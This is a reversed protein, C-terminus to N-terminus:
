TFASVRFWVIAHWTIKEGEKTFYLKEISVSEIKKQYTVLAKNLSAVFRSQLLGDSVLKQIEGKNEFEWRNAGFPPPSDRFVRQKQLYTLVDLQIESQTFLTILCIHKIRANRDQSHIATLLDELREPKPTHETAPTIIWADYAPEKPFEYHVFERTWMRDEAQTRVGFLVILVIVIRLTKM